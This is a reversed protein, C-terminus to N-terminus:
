IKFLLFIFFLSFYVELNIKLANYGATGVYADNGHITLWLVKGKLEIADGKM